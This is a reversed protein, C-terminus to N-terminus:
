VEFQFYLASNDSPVVEQSNLCMQSIVRGGFFLVEVKPHSDQIWLIHGSKRHVVDIYKQLKQGSTGKRILAGQNWFLEGTPKQFHKIIFVADDSFVVLFCFHLIVLTFFRVM